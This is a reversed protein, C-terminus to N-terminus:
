QELKAILDDKLDDSDYDIGRDDLIEKLEKVTLSSWVLEILAENRKNYGNALSDIREQTPEYGERPYADDKQYVHKDDDLDTFAKIVKFEM